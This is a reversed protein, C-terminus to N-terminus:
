ESRGLEAGPPARSGSGLKAAPLVGFPSSSAAAGGQEVLTEGNSACASTSASSRIQTTPGAGRPPFLTPPAFSVPRIGPSASTPALPFTTPHQRRAHASSYQTSVTTSTGLRQTPPLPHRDGASSTPASTGDRAWPAPTIVPGDDALLNGGAVEDGDEDDARGDGSSPLTEGTEKDIWRMGMEGFRCHQVVPVKSLVEVKYMDWLGKTVKHWTPVTTAIQHLLPSHEHFPGRKLEHIHSISSLFLYSSAPSSITASSLISAPRLTPHGILQSAGFLYVLHQHDDLGWVGKSGAPELRFVKQVERCVDIYESFVRVVLAQEDAETYVRLRCLCVLYCLFSLEHGTGYDLRQPSGFSSLLQFSLEPLIAEAVEPPINAIALLDRQFFNEAKELRELWDRFAKNGFRQPGQALPTEQVWQRAEELFGVLKQTPESRVCEVSNNKGQVAAALRLITRELDAYASSRFWPALDAETFIKRRPTRTSSTNASPSESSSTSSTDVAAVFPPVPLVPESANAM